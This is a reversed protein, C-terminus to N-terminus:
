TLDWGENELDEKSKIKNKHLSILKTYEDSTDDIEIAYEDSYTWEIDGYVDKSGSDQKKQKLDSGYVTRSVQPTYTGGKDQTSQVYLEHAIGLLRAKQRNVDNEVDSGKLYKKAM